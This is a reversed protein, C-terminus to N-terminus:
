EPVMAGEASETYMLSGGNRSIMDAVAQRTPIESIILQMDDDHIRQVLKEEPVIANIDLVGEIDLRQKIAESALLESRWVDENRSNKVLASKEKDNVQTTAKSDFAGEVEYQTTSLAKAEDRLLTLTTSNGTLEVAPEENNNVLFYASVAVSVVLLLFLLKM